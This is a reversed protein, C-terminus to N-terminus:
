DVECSAVDTVTRCVQKWRERDAEAWGDVGSVTRDTYASAIERIDDFTLGAYDGHWRRIAEGMIEKIEDVQKGAALARRKEEALRDLAAQDMTLRVLLDVVKVQNTHQTSM